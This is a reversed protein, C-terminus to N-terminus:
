SPSGDKPLDKQAIDEQATENQPANEQLPGEQSGERIPEEQSKVQPAEEQLTEEQPENERPTGDQPPKKTPRRKRYVFWYLAFGGGFLILYGAIVGLVVWVTDEEPPLIDNLSPKDVVGGPAPLEVMTYSFVTTVSDKMGEKVAYATLLMNEVLTIPGEYKVRAPNEADSPDSRDLTYYITAGKTLTSLIITQGKGVSSGSPRNATVKECRELDPATINSVTVSVVQSLETGPVTIRIIATGPLDGRLIVTAKGNEDAIVETEMLTVISPSLSALFLPKGAGAEPSLLQVTLLGGGGYEVALEEPAQIGTPLLDVPLTATHPNEMANGAYNVAGEVTITIEEELETEAEFLFISAYSISPDKFSREANLPRLTGTIQEGEMMVTVTNTNVSALDMYQSFVIRVSQSYAHLSAVTPRETSVLAMNVQTIPSPLSLYGQGNATPAKKSDAPLYGDKSFKLLWLGMPVDWQYQGNKDTYCPNAQNYEGANWFIDTREGTPVGLEDTEYGYYYAEVKVGELRNSPVAECVYGSSAIIPSCRVVISSGISPGNGESPESAGPEEGYSVWLAQPPQTSTGKGVFADKEGDYLCPVVTEEGDASLLHVTVQTASISGKQLKVILTPPTDTPIFRYSPTPTALDFLIRQEADGPYVLTVTYAEAFQPDRIVTYAETQIPASLLDNQIQAHIKHSSYSAPKVLPIRTQFFGTKNALVVGVATDGDYLTVTSQPFTFGYVSITEQSTARPLEMHVDAVELTVQGIPQTGTEGGLATQLHAKVVQSGNELATVSFVATGASHSVPLSLIGEELTYSAAKGDLVASGEVPQLGEPLSFLIKQATTEQGGELAYQCRLTVAQGVTVMGQSATFLNAKSPEEKGSPHAKEEGPAADSGLGGTSSGSGEASITLPSLASFLLLVALFVCFIRKM